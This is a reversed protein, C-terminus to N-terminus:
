GNNRQIFPKYVQSGSKSLVKSVLGQGDIAQCYGLHLFAAMGVSEKISQRNANWDKINISSRMLQIAAALSIGGDLTCTKLDPRFQIKSGNLSNINFGKLKTMNFDQEHKM